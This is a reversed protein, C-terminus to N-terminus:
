TAGVVLAIVLVVVLAVVLWHRLRRPKTTLREFEEFTDPIEPELSPPLDLDDLYADSSWGTKEDAGCEKCALAGVRVECGCVPCVFWDPTSGKERAVLAHSYPATAFFRLGRPPGCADIRLAARQPDIGAPRRAAQPKKSRCRIRM